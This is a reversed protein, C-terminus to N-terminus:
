CETFRIRSNYVVDVSSFQTLMLLYISGTAISAVTAGTGSFVTSLGLDLYIEDMTPEPSGNTLAGATMTYPPISTTTNYLTTFRKRNNLNNPAAFDSSQLIDALTPAVGNTQEDYIIMVRFFDGTSVSTTTNLFGYVKLNISELQIVRGDRTNYDDGTAVGNLLALSGSSSIIGASLSGSDITKLEM